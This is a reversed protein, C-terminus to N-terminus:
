PIPTDKFHSGDEPLEVRFITEGDRVLSKSRRIAAELELPDDNLNEVRIKLEAEQAELTDLQGQMSEVQGESQRYDEFLGYFDRRQVYVVLLVAMLVLALWYWGKPNESM